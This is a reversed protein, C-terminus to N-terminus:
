ITKSVIAVQPVDCFQECGRGGLALGMWYVKSIKKFIGGIEWYWLNENEIQSEIIEIDM